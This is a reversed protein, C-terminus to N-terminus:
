TPFPKFDRLHQPGELYVMEDAWRTFWMNDGQVHTSVRRNQSGKYEVVIGVRIGDIIGCGFGVSIMMGMQLSDARCCRRGGIVQIGDSATM